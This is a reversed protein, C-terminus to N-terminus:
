DDWVSKHEFSRADAETGSEYGSGGYHTDELSSNSSLKTLLEEAMAEKVHAIPKIYRKKNM